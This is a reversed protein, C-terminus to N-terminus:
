SEQPFRLRNWLSAGLYAGLTDICVDLASPGRGPTFIQHLEDSVAYLGALLVAVFFSRRDISRGFALAHLYSAGLLAYGLLHGCKKLYTDLEGFNPLDNNPTGSALFILMMVILAPGWRRLLSRLLLLLAKV